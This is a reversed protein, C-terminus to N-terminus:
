DELFDGIRDLAKITAADTVNNADISIYGLSTNKKFADVLASAGEDGIQNDNLDLSLLTTNIQLAKAFATAGVNGIFNRHMSLMTLTTNKYLADAFLAASNNNIKNRGIFLSHLTTNVKLADALRELTDENMRNKMLDLTELTTNQPLCTILADSFGNSEENYIAISLAHLNQNKNLANMFKLAKTVDFGFVTLSLMTVSLDGEEFSLKQSAFLDIFSNTRISQKGNDSLYLYITSDDVPYKYEKYLQKCTSALAYTIRAHKILIQDRIVEHPLIFITSRTDMTYIAVVSTLSMVLLAYVLCIRYSLM